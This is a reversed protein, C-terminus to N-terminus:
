RTRDAVKVTNTITLMIRFKTVGPDSCRANQNPISGSRGRASSISEPRYRNTSGYRVRELTPRREASHLQRGCKCKTHTTAALSDAVFCSSWSTVVHANVQLYQENRDRSDA